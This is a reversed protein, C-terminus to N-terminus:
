LPRSIMGAVERMLRLPVTGAANGATVAYLLIDAFTM